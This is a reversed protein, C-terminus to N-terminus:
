RFVFSPISALVSLLIQLILLLVMPSVDVGGILPILNQLPRLFPRAIINLVPALPAYPNVWSLLASVIVVGMLLYVGVRLVEILALLAVAGSIALGPWGGLVYFMSQFIVQTLWALLLSALDMGYASPILRRTPRVAWDTLAIVFEGVPNRFPARTWQMLFRALLAMTFFGCVWDLIQSFLQFM